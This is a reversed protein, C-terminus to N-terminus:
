VGITLSMEGEGIIMMVFPLAEEQMEATFKALALLDQRSTQASTGRPHSHWEGVYRLRGMTKKGITQMTAQLGEKGRVFSTSSEISDVPASVSHSIYINKRKTDFAGILVGGTENPLKGARLSKLNELLKKDIFITWEGIKKIFNEPVKFSHKKIEFKESMRWICVQAEEELVLEDIAASAIGSLIALNSTPLISTLDRCSGSYRHGDGSSILINSLSEETCILQYYFHEVCDIRNIRRADEKLIILDAGSPSLFVSIVPVDTEIDRALYRPVTESASIDLILKSKKLEDLIEKPKRKPCLLDDYYPTIKIKDTHVVTALNAMATTKGYGVMSSILVHRSLNHPLLIDSDILAFNSYGMRILNDFIKSGLAGLGVVTIREDFTESKGNLTAALKPTFENVINLLGISAQRGDKEEDASMLTALYRGKVQWIGIKEGLMSIPDYIIFAWKNITEIESSANRKLPITIFLVLRADLNQKLSGELHMKKVSERLTLLLNFGAAKLLCDLELLNQPIKNIVGHVVPSVDIRIAFGRMHKLDFWDFVKPDSAIKLTMTKEFSIGGIFLTPLEERAKEFLEEDIIVRFDTPPLFPELAQDDKHLDGIASHYFWHKLRHIFDAPTWTLNVLDWSQDYLCLSKPYENLTLNTHPLSPFDKRLVEVEPYWSDNQNFKVYVREVEKIDNKKFQPIENEFDFCIGEFVIGSNQWKTVNIIKIYSPYRRIYALLAKAKELELLEPSSREELLECFEINM